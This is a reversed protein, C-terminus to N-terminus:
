NFWDRLRGPGREVERRLAAHLPDSLNSDRALVEGAERRAAEMIEHDRVLDALRLEPLGHQRTGLFEGPGRLRLDAEAIEFGDQSRCLVEMRRRAEEGHAGTVFICFSQHVGRGVRGRLQHLQALGFREADLVVMVTANPVDVGVEIVTTSILIDLKRQRFAEMVADKDAGRMRGHLLGVQLEPFIEEEWRAAEGIAAAVELQDSEEVLPCVVFIQRGRVVERRLFSYLRSIEEIPLWRSHIRTRGPPMEDLVSIDLDGYITLALTRPIPTATMVLLDPINGKRRLISRQLVGFRHQEDIVILGLDHFNVGEQILAHTGVVVPIRGDALKELTVERRRRTLSGTLLGTEIGAGGLLDVLRRHQQHALIETPVMIAAQVRSRAACFAAFAALATKGSGVDGQLLRCMPRLSRLDGLIEEMTRQQASTPAFPLLRKFEAALDADSLYITTREEVTRQARRQLVLLQLLFLEEFILRKQAQQLMSLSSPFHIQELAQCRPMLQLKDRIDPPLFEPLRSSHLDLNTRIIKRLYRQSLSETSPYVPVIRGTNLPDDDSISEFEASHLQLEGYRYEVKGTAIIRTDPKLYDGRTHKGFFTLWIVGSEDAIPIRTITLGSRPSHRQVRGAVGSITSIGGPELQAIPTIRSRDEYRRPFHFFLDGISQLGLRNLRAAVAPGVGKAYQVPSDLPLGGPAAAMLKVQERHRRDDALGPVKGSTVRGTAPDSGPEERCVQRIREILGEARHLLDRRRRPAEAAYDIFAKELEDLLRKSQHGCLLERAKRTWLIGYEHFGGFVPANDFGMRAEQAFPRLITDLIDSLQAM